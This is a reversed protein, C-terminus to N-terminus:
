SAETPIVRIQRCVTVKRKSKVIKWSVYKVLNLRQSIHLLNSISILLLFKKEFYITVYPLDMFLGLGFRGM